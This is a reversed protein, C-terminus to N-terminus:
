TAAGALPLEVTVTTGAGPGGTVSVDGGVLVARDRMGLLGLSRPNTVAAPPVGRGNDEVVLRVRGADVTLLVHVRTAEAHRVVNTLAEQLIRFLATARDGAIAVDGCPTSLVCRIAARREVDILYARIAGVFGLDDLVVPRLEAAVRRVDDVSTDILASMETLRERIAATDSADLRRRVEAVDMKLATLAQGLNDHIGRAMMVREQERAENLRSSMAQLDTMSKRLRAESDRLARDIRAREEDREHVELGFAIDMALEDLLRMEEADFAAATGAYLNFTGIVTGRVRLPLAAMSVYGRDAALTRWSGALPDCAIDACIVPGGSRLARATFACAPEVGGSGILHRVAEVTEVSAGAHAAVALTGAENALGIWAMVFDGREVALRCASELMQRADPERVITENIGSLMAYVRNLHQVRLEAQRRATVVTSVGIMGVVRGDADRDPVMHTDFYESEVKILGSVSDGALVRHLAVPLPVPVGSTPILEVQGYMGAVTSGVIEGPARGGGEIGRGEFLTFTGEADTAFIVVPANNLVARLRADAARVREEAEKRETVDHITGLARLPTGDEAHTVRWRVEVCKVRGDPMPIRYDITTIGRREFSTVLAREVRERDDPHVRSLFQQYSPAVAALDAEFIRHTEVSWTVSMTRLDTAWSGMRAVSQAAVLHAREITLEEALARLRRESKALAEATRRRETIDRATKSAGVVHGSSDHIPSVAISVDIRRGDKAQRVTEFPEVREGRRIAQLIRREEDQRDAPIIRMIPSGVIEEAAYGFIRQAGKNWSTIIGSLDKAIIADDSSEVIAALRSEQTQARREALNDIAILGFGILEQGVLIPYCSVRRHIVQGPSDRYRGSIEQNAITEGALAREYLPKLAPWFHPVVDAVARGAHEAASLRNFRALSENVRVYRLARDIFAMGVPSSEFLTELARLSLGRADGPM